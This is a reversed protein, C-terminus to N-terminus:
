GNPAERWECIPCDKAEQGGRAPEPIDMPQL